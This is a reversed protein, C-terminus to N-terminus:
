LSGLVVYFRGYLILYIQLVDQQCAVLFVFLGISALYVASEKDDWDVQFIYLIVVLTHEVVV